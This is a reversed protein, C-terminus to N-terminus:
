SRSLGSRICAGVNTLIHAPRGGTPAMERPELSRQVLSGVVLVGIRAVRASLAYTFSLASHSWNMAKVLPPIFVGFAISTGSVAM